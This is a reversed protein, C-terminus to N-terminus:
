SGNQRGQLRLPAGAPITLTVVGELMPDLIRNLRAIETWRTADGLLEAAVAFLTGGCVTMTNM